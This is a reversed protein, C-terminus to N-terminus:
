HVLISHGIWRKVGTCMLNRKRETHYETGKKKIGRIKKNKKWFRHFFESVQLRVPLCCIQCTAPRKIILVENMSSDYICMKVSRGKGFFVKGCFNTEEIAAFVKQALNNKISYKNRVKFGTVATILLTCAHFTSGFEFNFFVSTWLMHM